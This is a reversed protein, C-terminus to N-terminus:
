KVAVVTGTLVSESTVISAISRLVRISDLAIVSVCYSLSGLQLAGTLPQWGAALSL